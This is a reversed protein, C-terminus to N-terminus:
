AETRVVNGRNDKLENIWWQRNESPAIFRIHSAIATLRHTDLDLTKAIFDPLTAGLEDFELGDHDFGFVKGAEPGETPVLLYNGSRPVEGIVLCSDIWDPLFDAAEDEDIGDLWPRFDEDLETWQSPSAILFAAEGSTEDVYLTLQAFTDYFDRLGVVDPVASDFDAPLSVHHFDVTKTNAENQIESCLFTGAHSEVASRLTELAPM